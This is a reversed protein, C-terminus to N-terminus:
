VGLPLTVELVWTPQRNRVVLCGGLTEVRERLGILGLHNQQVAIPDESVSNVFVATVESDGQEIMIRCPGGRTGHKAMNSTAEVVVKSLAEQASEPLDSLDAEVLTSVQFGLGTLHAVRDAIVEQPPALRWPSRPGTDPDAKRLVELMSRLDRISNRGAAIIYDLDDSLEPDAIGRLKAQEARMIMTTTSYAVTDHLDRAISRREAKLADSKAQQAAEHDLVIVRVSSGAVWALMAFFTWGGVATGFQGLNADLGAELLGAVILFWVTFTARLGTYGRVGLSIMPIFMALQSFRPEEMPLGLLATLMLGTGVSGWLPWRGSAGSAVCVALEVALGSGNLHQSSSYLVLFAAIIGAIVAEVVGQHGLRSLLLHRGMLRTWWRESSMEM